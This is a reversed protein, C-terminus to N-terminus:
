PHTSASKKYAYTSLAKEDVSDRTDGDTGLRIVFYQKVSRADEVCTAAQYIYHNKDLNVGHDILKEEPYEAIGVYWSPYQGGYQEIFNKIQVVIKVDTDVM